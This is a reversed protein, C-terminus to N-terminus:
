FNNSSTNFEPLIVLLQMVATSVTIECAAVSM